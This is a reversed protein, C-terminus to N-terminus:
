RINSTANLMDMWRLKWTRDVFLGQVDNAGGKGVVRRVVGM